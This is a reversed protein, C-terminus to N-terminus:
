RRYQAVNKEDTRKVKAKQMTKKQTCKENKEKMIRKKKKL